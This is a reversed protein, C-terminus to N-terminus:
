FLLISRIVSIKGILDIASRTVPNLNSQNERRSISNKEPEIMVLTETFYAKLLAEKEEEQMQSETLKKLKEFIETLEESPFTFVTCLKKGIIKDLGSVNEFNFVCRVYDEEKGLVAFQHFSEKPIIVVTEPLLRVKETECIFEAEGGIFFFIENYTHIEKGIIDRMGKAYKFVLEDTRIFKTFIDTEQGTKGM